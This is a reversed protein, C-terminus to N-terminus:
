LIKRESVTDVLDSIKNKHLTYNCQKARGWKGLGVKGEMSGRFTMTEGEKIIITLCM